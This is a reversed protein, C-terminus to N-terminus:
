TFMLILSIKVSGDFRSKPKQRDWSVRSGAAAATRQDDGGGGLGHCVMDGKGENNSPDRGGRGWQRGQLASAM